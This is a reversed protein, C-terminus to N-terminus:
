SYDAFGGFPLEANNQPAKCGCDIPLLVEWYLQICAKNVQHVPLAPSHEQTRYSSGEHATPPDPWPGKQSCMDQNCVQGTYPAGQCCSATLIVGNRKM